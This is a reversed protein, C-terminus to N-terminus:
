GFQRRDGLLLRHPSAHPTKRRSIGFAIGESPFKSSFHRAEFPLLIRQM